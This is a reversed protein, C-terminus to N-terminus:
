LHPINGKFYSLIVPNLLATLYGVIVGVLKAVEPSSIDVFGMLVICVVLFFGSIVMVAIIVASLDRDM